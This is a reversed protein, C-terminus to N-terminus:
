VLAELSILSESPAFTGFIDLSGNRASAARTDEENWLRALRECEQKCEDYREPSVLGDAGIAFYERLEMTVSTYRDARSVERSFEEEEIQSFDIPCPLNAEGVVESWRERLQLLCKLLPAIGDGWCRLAFFPLNGRGYRAPLWNARVRLQSDTITYVIMEYGKHRMMLRHQRRVIAQKEPTYTDYDAPLKPMSVPTPALTEEECQFAPPFNAQLYYPKVVAHQWDILGLVNLAGTEPVVINRESIDPHWLVPM